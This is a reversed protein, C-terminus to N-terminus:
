VQDSPPDKPEEAPPSVLEEDSEVDFLEEPERRDYDEPAETNKQLLGLRARLRISADSSDHNMGSM